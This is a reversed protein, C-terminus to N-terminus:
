SNSFKSVATALSTMVWQFSGSTGSIYFPIEQRPEWWDSPYGTSHILSIFGCIYKMMMNSVNEGSMTHGLVFYSFGPLEIRM